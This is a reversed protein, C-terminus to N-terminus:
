IHILSLTHLTELARLAPGYDMGFGTYRAYCADADLVPGDCEARLAALDLREAPAQAPRRLQGRAFATREGAEDAYVEYDVGDDARATLEVHVETDDRVTPPRLWSALRVTWGLEDGTSRAAGARAMELHAVAPLVPVASEAAAAADTGPRWGSVVSMVRDRVRHDDLFFERGTFRATYRSDRICM